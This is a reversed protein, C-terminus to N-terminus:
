HPKPLAEINAFYFNIRHKNRRGVLGLPAETLGHPEAISAFVSERALGYTAWVQQEVGWGKGM